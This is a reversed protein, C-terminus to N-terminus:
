SQYTDPYLRLEKEWKADDPLGYGWQWVIVCAWWPSLKSATYESENINQHRIVNPIKKGEKSGSQLM